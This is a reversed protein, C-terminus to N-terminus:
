LLDHPSRMGLPGCELLHTAFSHRPWEVPAHPYQRGLSHPLPVKGYGEAGCRRGSTFGEGTCCGLWWPRRGMERPYSDVTRRADHRAELEERYRQILGPSGQPTPM